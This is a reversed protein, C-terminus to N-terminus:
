PRGKENKSRLIVRVLSRGLYYFGLGIGYLVFPLAFVFSLSM